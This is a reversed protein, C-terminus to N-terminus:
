SEEGNYGEVEIESSRRQEGPSDRHEKVKGSRRRRYVQVSKRENSMEPYGCQLFFVGSDSSVLITSLSAFEGVHFNM